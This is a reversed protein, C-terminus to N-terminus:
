LSACSFTEEWDNTEQGHLQSFSREGGGAYDKWHWPCATEANGLFEQPYIVEVYSKPIVSHLEFEAETEERDLADRLKPVEICWHEKDSPRPDRAILRRDELNQVFQRFEAETM